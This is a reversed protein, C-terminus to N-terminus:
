WGFTVGARGATYNGGFGLGGDVVLSTTPGAFGRALVGAASLGIANSGAFTGWGIRVGVTQGAQLVPQALALSIAIGSALQRDRQALGDIQAQLSGIDASSAIGLGALTSTALNGSSDSTVIQRPGVQAGASAASAIGAMTYTNSATGFMQQDARTAVAGNGVATSNAFTASSNTGLATSDSGTAAALRGVATSNSGAAFTASGLATGAVGSALGGIAISSDASATTGQGIAISGTGSANAGSGIATSVFGGANAGRGVATGLDGTAVAGAGLATGGPASAESSNGVATSEGGTAVAANGCATNNVITGDNPGTTQAGANACETAQARRPEVTLGALVTLAVCGALLVVSRNRLKEAM